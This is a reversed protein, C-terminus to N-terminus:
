YYKLYPDGPQIDELVEIGWDDTQSKKRLKDALDPIVWKESPYHGIEILTLSKGQHSVMPHYGIEGCIFVQAGTSCAAPILAGGSGGCVAAKQILPIILGSVRLSPVEVEQKLRQILVEWSVPPDFHGVRGLGIDPPSNEVPYIDYAMEEYPHARRIKEILEPVNARPILVELRWELAREMEGIAGLFPHSGAEAKFTGEGRSKFTCLRYSGIRGAGMEDLVPMIKEEYGMPIFVVLKVSKQFPKEIPRLDILGLRLALATSVGDPASDLNTHAVLLAIKEEAMRLATRGPDQESNLSFVPQFFLPHHCILLQLGNQVAWSVSRPTAELSIGIREVPQEPDGLQLGIHDWTEAWSPPFRVEMWKQIERIKITM